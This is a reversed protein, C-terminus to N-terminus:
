DDPELHLYAGYGAAILEAAEMGSVVHRHGGMYVKLAAEIETQSPYRVSRWVADADQMITIGRHLGYRTMLANLAVPTEQISPNVLVVRDANRITPDEVFAASEIGDLFITQPYGLQLSAVGFAEGTVVGTPTIFQQIAVNTTGFAEGSTIGTPGILAALRVAGFTEGTAIGSPSIFLRTTLTGFAQASAIGALSISQSEPTTIVLSGFAEGSAIGAGLITFNLQATGFAEGSAINGAGSITQPFAGETITVTFGIREWLSGESSTFTVSGIATGSALQKTYAASGAASDVELRKTYTAPTNWTM